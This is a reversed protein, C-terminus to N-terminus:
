IVSENIDEFSRQQSIYIRMYFLQGLLHFVKKSWTIEALFKGYIYVMNIRSETPKKRLHPFSNVIQFKVGFQFCRKKQLRYIKLKYVFEKVILVSCKM